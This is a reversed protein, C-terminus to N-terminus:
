PGGHAQHLEERAQVRGTPVTDRQHGLQLPHLELAEMECLVGPQCLPGNPRLPDIRQAQVADVLGGSDLCVFIEVFIEM